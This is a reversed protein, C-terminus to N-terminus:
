KHTTKSFLKNRKIIKRDIWSQFKILDSRGLHSYLLNEHIFSEFSIRLDKDLKNLEQNLQEFTARRSPFSVTNDKIKDLKNLIDLITKQKNKSRKVIQNSLQFVIDSFFATRTIHSIYSLWNPFDGNTAVSDLHRLLRLYTLSGNVISIPLFTTTVSFSGGSFFANTISNVFGYTPNTTCASLFVLPVHIKNKIIIESTLKEDNIILYSSLTKQEFGGHSDIILLEPKELKIISIFDKISKCVYTKIKLNKCEDVVLNNMALFEVEHASSGFLVLTKDRINKPIVYQFNNNFSYHM